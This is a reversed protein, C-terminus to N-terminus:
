WFFDYGIPLNNIIMKIIPDFNLLQGVNTSVKNWM